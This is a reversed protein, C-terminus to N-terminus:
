TKIPAKKIQIQASSDYVRDEYRLYLFAGILCAVTFGLFWPWFFWYYAIEKKIDFTNEEQFNTNNIIDEKM